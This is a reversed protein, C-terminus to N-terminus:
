SRHEFGVIEGKDLYNKLLRLLQAWSYNSRRFHANTTQWDKQYHSLFVGGKVESLIFGFRTPNWDEDSNTMKLEFHQIIDCKSV